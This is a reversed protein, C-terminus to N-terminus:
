EKEIMLSVINQTGLPNHDKVRPVKKRGMLRVYLKLYVSHVHFDSLKLAEFSKIFVLKVYFGYFTIQTIM